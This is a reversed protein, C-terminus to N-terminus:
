EMINANHNELLRKMKENAELAKIEVDAEPLPSPFATIERKCARDTVFTIGDYEVQWCHDGKKMTYTGYKLARQLDRKNIDRQERRLRGHASSLITILSTKKDDYGNNAAM